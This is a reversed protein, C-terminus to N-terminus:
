DEVITLKSLEAVTSGRCRIELIYKGTHLHGTRTILDSDMKFQTSFIHACKRM